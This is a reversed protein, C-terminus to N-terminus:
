FVILTRNLLELNGSLRFRSVKLEVRLTINGTTDTLHHFLLFRTM